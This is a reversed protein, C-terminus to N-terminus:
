APLFYDPSNTRSVACPKVLPASIGPWAPQILSAAAGLSVYDFIVEGDYGHSVSSLRAGCRALM